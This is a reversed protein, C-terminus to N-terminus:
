NALLEQLCALQFNWHKIIYIEDASGVDILINSVFHIWVNTESVYVPVTRRYACGDLFYSM